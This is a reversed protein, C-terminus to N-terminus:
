SRKKCSKNGVEFIVDGYKLAVDRSHTVMIITKDNRKCENVLMRIIHEENTKDLAASPEDLLYVDPNLILVRALALRSKEGGSLNVVRDDLQKNLYVLRLYEELVQDTPIIKNQLELGKILNDRITDPFLPSNQTLMTVERRLAM